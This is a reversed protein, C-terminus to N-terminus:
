ELEDYEFEAVVNTQHWVGDPGAEQARVNRLQVGSATTTGRLANVLEIALRDEESLGDGLPCFLQVFLLGMNRWRRQGNYSGLTAQESDTHRVSVRAWKVTGDPPDQTDSDWIILSVQSQLVSNVLELLEDRAKIRNTTGITM